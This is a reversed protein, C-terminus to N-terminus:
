NDSQFVKKKRTEEADPVNKVTLIRDYRRNTMGYLMGTCKSFCCFGCRTMVGATNLLLFQSKYM